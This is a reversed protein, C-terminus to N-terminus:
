KLTECITIKYQRVKIAEPLTIFERPITWFRGDNNVTVVEDRSDVQIIDLKQGRICLKSHKSWDTNQFEQATM